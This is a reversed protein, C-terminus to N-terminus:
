CADDQKSWRANAARRAIKSRESASLQEARRSGGKSQAQSQLKSKEIEEDARKNHRTGDGNVPFFEAAVRRVAREEEEGHASAIRCLTAIDIPLPQMTSYYHDLLADYAGRESLSLHRTKATYDGPYRKYWNVVGGADRGPLARAPRRRAMRAIAQQQDLAAFMRRQNRTTM